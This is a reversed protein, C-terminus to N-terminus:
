GGGSAAPFPSLMHFFIQFPLDDGGQCDSNYSRCSTYQRCRCQICSHNQRTFCLDLLPVGLISLCPYIAYCASISKGINYIILKHSEDNICRKPFTGNQWTICINRRFRGSQRQSIQIIPLLRIGICPIVSCNAAIDHNPSAITIGACADISNRLINIRINFIMQVSTCYQASEAAACSNSDATDITRFCVIPITISNSEIRKDVSFYMRSDPIYRCINFFICFDDSKKIAAQCGTDSRTSFDIFFFFCNRGYRGRGSSLHVTIGAKDNGAPFYSRLRKGPFLVGHPLNQISHPFIVDIRGTKNAATRRNRCEAAICLSRYAALGPNRHIICRNDANDAATCCDRRICRPNGSQYEMFGVSIFTLIYISIRM